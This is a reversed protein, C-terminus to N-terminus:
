RRSSPADPVRLSAAVAAALETAARTLPLRSLRRSSVGSRGAYVAASLPDFPFGIVTADGALSRDITAVEFPKDGVVVVLLAATSGSLAEAQDVLRRLRVAAAGPSQTAQRHVLVITAAAGVFPHGRTTSPPVGADAIVVPTPESAMLPVIWRASEAVAQRAEATRSPAPILRLGSPSLRAHREITDWSADSVTTVLTSLSPALPMDLWAALDGGRPDAEVVLVESSAPWAAALAVATTTSGDGVVAVISM